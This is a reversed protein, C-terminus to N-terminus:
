EKSEEDAKIKPLLKIEGDKDESDNEASLFIEEAERLGKILVDRADWVNGEELLDLADVVDNSLHLYMKAWM